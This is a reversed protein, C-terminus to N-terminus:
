LILIFKHLVMREVVSEELTFYCFRDNTKGVVVTVIVYGVYRASRKLRCLFSM